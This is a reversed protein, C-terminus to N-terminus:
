SMPIWLSLATSYRLSIGQDQFLTVDSSLRIRNAALSGTNLRNLTVNNSANRSTVTIIQGDYGAEIGTVNSAGSSANLDLFGVDATISLNHTAGAPLATTQLETSAVEGPQLATDAKALSAIVEAALAINIDGVKGNGNTITIQTAQGTITRIAVNNGGILAPIGFTDQNSLSTLTPHKPQYMVDLADLVEFFAEDTVLGVDDILSSVNGGPQLATNALGLSAITMDSLAVTVPENLSGGGTLGPGVTLTGTLGGIFTGGIEILISEDTAEIVTVQDIVEINAM